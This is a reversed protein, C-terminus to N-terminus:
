KRYITFVNSIIHFIGSVCVGHCVRSSRGQPLTCLGAGGRVLQIHDKAKGLVTPPKKPLLEDIVPELRPYLELVQPGTPVAPCRALPFEQTLKLGGIISM